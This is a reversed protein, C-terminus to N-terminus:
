GAKLKVKALDIVPVSMEIDFWKKFMDLTIEQPWTAMDDTSQLLYHGFIFEYEAEVKKIAESASSELAFLYTSSHHKFDILKKKDGTVRNHWKVFPQKPRVIVAVRNIVEGYTSEAKPKRFFM